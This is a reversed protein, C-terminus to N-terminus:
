FSLVPEAKLVEEENSGPGTVGVESLCSHTGRVKQLGVRSKFLWSIVRDKWCWGSGWRVQPLLVMEM